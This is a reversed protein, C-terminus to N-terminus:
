SLAERLAMLQSQDVIQLLADDSAQRIGDVSQFAQLLAKKTETGLGPVEDLASHILAKGARRKRRDNAFRHAEDRLHQLLFQAPSDKPMPIATDQSPVFVEELRKALSAVPISLHLQSLVDIGQQLQGKGGDILILDPAESFSADARNERVDFSMVIHSANEELRSTLAPPPQRVYRFGLDAFAIEQEANVVTYVKGKKISKLLTRIMYPMCLGEQYSESLWPQALERLGTTHTLLLACAITEREHHALLSDRPVFSVSDAHIHSFARSLFEADAKRGRAFTIGRKQWAEEEASPQYTLYKLRRRLTERLSAYDDIKGHTVTKMNFSRYHDRKPKGNEFVVMSGVTESGSMHSIDYAEIRRPNGPLSLLSALESLASQVRKTEAEWAAFQQTVQENANREAMELLKSKRGREPVCVKVGAGRRERLWQELAVLADPRDSLFLTPPIDQTHSYYQPLFQGLAESASEACGLLPFGLQEIVRGDRLKLLVVQTKGQRIAVAVIDADEGSTDSVIQKEKLQAIFRLVDRMRAAKEFKKDAAAARMHEDAINEVHSLNGRFFREVERIRRLYEEQSIEGICLGCCKGIQYDLCPSSQSSSQQKRANCAAISPECARYHLIDDLMDLTKRVDRSSLFPGFYKADDDQMRRVLEVRPFPESLSMRVYSYGKDDKLMINYKPKYEKILNAELMLAELESKVVITSFDAIQRVMIETWASRKSGESVYSKLRNRVNKAKGIYLVNGESDLWRYVGPSTPADAIRRRIITLREDAHHQKM